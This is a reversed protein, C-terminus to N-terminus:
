VIESLLEPFEKTKMVSYNFHGYNHFEKCKIDKIKDLITRVSEHIEDSDDDSNFITIGDTKSTLNADIDFNNFGDKVLGKPDIWPAVLIVKGVKIDNESLWRVIFGGGYSHGVLITEADPEFRELMKVWEIYVPEYPTPFEPAQALIDRIILQKQLWPLWHCNSESDGKPSYYDEKYPMGHIIIAKKM